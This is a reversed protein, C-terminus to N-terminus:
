VCRSTYLLCSYLLTNEEPESPGTNDNSTLTTESFSKNNRKAQATLEDADSHLSDHSGYNSQSAMLINRQLRLSPIILSCIKNIWATLNDRQLKYENAEQCTSGREVYISFLIM